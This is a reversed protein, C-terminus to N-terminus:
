PVGGLARHREAIRIDDPVRLARVAPGVRIQRELLARGDTPRAFFSASLGGDRGPDGARAHLLAARDADAGRLCVYLSAKRDKFMRTEWALEEALDAVAQPDAGGEAARRPLAPSGAARIDRRSRRRSAAMASSAPSSRAASATRADRFDRRFRRSSRRGTARRPERRLGRDGEGGGGRRGAPRCWRSSIPWGPDDSWADGSPRSSPGTWVAAASLEAVKRQICPWDAGRDAAGALTRRRGAGVAAVFIALRSSM